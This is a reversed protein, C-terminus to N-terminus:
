ARRVQGPALPISALEEASLARVAAIVAEDDSGSHKRTAAVAAQTDAIAVNFYHFSPPDLIPKGIWPAGDPSAPAIPAPVNLQTVWGAPTRKDSM